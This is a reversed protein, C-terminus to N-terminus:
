KSSKKDNSHIEKKVAKIAKGVTPAIDTIVDKGAEKAVPLSQQAMYAMIGRRKTMLFTMGSYMLAAFIIFGGFIFFGFNSMSEGSKAGREFNELEEILNEQENYLSCFEKTITSEKLEPYAASACNYGGSSLAVNILHLSYADGANPNESREIDLAELRLKEKELADKEIGLNSKAEILEASVKAKNEDSYKEAIEANKIIGTLILSGGVLLGGLLIGLSLKKVKQNTKQYKEENLYKANNM